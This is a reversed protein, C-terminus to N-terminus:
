GKRGVSVKVGYPTVEHLLVEEEVNYRTTRSCKHAWFSNEPKLGEVNGLNFYTYGNGVDSCYIIFDQGVKFDTYGCSGSTRHTYITLTDLLSDGKYVKLVAAQVKTIVKSDYQRLYHEKGALNRRVLVEKEPDMSAAYSIYETSLVKAKIVAAASEYAEPVPSKPVCTCADASLSFLFVFALSLIIRM